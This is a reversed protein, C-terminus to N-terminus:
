AWTWRIPTWPWWNSHDLKLEQQACTRTWWFCPSWKFPFLFVTRSVLIDKTKKLQQQFNQWSVAFPTHSPFETHLNLDSKDETHNQIIKRHNTKKKQSKEWSHGVTEILSCLWQKRQLKSKKRYVSISQSRLAWPQACHNVDDHTNLHQFTGAQGVRTKVVM